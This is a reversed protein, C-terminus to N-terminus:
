ISVPQEEVLVPPCYPQYDLMRIEKKRINVDYTIGRWVVQRSLLATPIAILYQIQCILYALPFLFFAAPSVLTTEEGRAQMIRRILVETLLVCLGLLIASIALTGGAYIAAQANHLLLAIVCLSLNVLTGVSLPISDCVMRHGKPHHLFTILFQRQIFNFNGRFTIEERNVAILQPVYKLKMGAALLPEVITMDETFSRLWINPLNFRHIDRVRLAMAGSWVGQYKWMSINAATNWVYRILSGFKGIRPMYWRNGLTAGVTPDQMVFAAEKLWNKPIVMDAACVLVLETSEDLNAVFQRIATCILTCSDFKEELFSIRVNKADRESIAKQVIQLSPDDPHDIIIHLQYDPYDQDLVSHIAQSLFPDAGRLPMLIAFQPFQVGRLDTPTPSRIQWAYRLFQTMQYITAVALLASCIIATYIM